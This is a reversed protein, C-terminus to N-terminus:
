RNRFAPAEKSVHWSAGVINFFNEVGAAGGAIHHFDPTLTGFGSWTDIVRSETFNPFHVESRDRLKALFANGVGALGAYRDVPPREICGVIFEDGPEPRTYTDPRNCRGLGISQLKYPDRIRARCTEAREVQFPYRASWRWSTEAWPGQRM